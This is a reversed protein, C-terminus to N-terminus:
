KKVEEFATCRPNVLGINDDSVWEPPYEPDTTDHCESAFIIDCTDTDKKCKLCFRGMFMVGETGNSPRYPYLGDPRQDSM